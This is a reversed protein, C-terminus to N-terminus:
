EKQIHVGRFSKRGLYPLLKEHLRRRGRSLRSMVTGVSIGTVESIQSYSLHEFERLVLIERSAVPLEEVSKRIMANRESQLVAMEQSPESTRHLGEDFLSERRSVGRKRLRDYCCNRVIRLFWARRDGDRLTAYCRIAREYASQVADEAEAQNRMLYHALNYASKQYAILTSADGKNKSIPHCENDSVPFVTRRLLQKEVELVLRFTLPLERRHVAVGRHTV